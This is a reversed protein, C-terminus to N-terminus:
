VLEAMSKAYNIMNEAIENVIANYVEPRTRKLNAAVLKNLQEEPVFSLTDSAAVKKKVSKQALSKPAFGHRSRKIKGDKLLRDLSNRVSFTVNSLNELTSIHVPGSSGNILDLVMDDIDSSHMRLHATYSNHSPFQRSCFVCSEPTQEAKDKLNLEALQEESVWDVM